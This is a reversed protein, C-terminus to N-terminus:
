HLADLPAPLCGYDSVFRKKQAEALDQRGTRLRVRIADVSSACLHRRVTDCAPNIAPGNPGPVIACGHPDAGHRYLNLLQERLGLDSTILMGKMLAIAADDDRHGALFVQALQRYIQPNLPDIELAQSVSQLAQGSDGLGLYAMSLLRYPEADGLALLPLAGRAKLKQNYAERGAQYISVCRQLVQLAKQYDGKSDYYGGAFLYADPTNRSDPLPELLALGKEAEDIVQNINSHDPDAESLSKARLTHIKASNIGADAATLTLNDRWDLNRTWTRAAFGALIVCMAVPVFRVIGFREAFAYAAIVLCGLLGISPLYLFREAMITGLPFLLNSTPILTVGAFCALFFATRNWRYCWAVAAIAALAAVGAVWDEVSGDALPIAPYTYDSSLRAPWITLRLCRVIVKIATSKGQWFGAGIIPNDTFPFEAPPSTALVVTRQYVMVALPPLIALCGSMLAAAAQREKWWVLEYLVIVGLIAVASEKSFVGITTVVMLGTLWITRRRGTSETSKLYMWFGSLLALGALLDARGIINTVSETLVPHVAWLSALFVAPWFKRLLRLALVYVLLVNGTHPILNIWHYGAPQDRDGLVAYNFLYSLTTVPRYLGSEGTPWWYTHRLILGVNQSTAERIRPDNLLLGANDLAFGAQFSNSFVLFTLACLAFM